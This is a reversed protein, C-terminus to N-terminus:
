LTLEDGIFVNGDHFWMFITPRGPREISFTQHNDMRVGAMEALQGWMDPRGSEFCRSRLEEEAIKHRNGLVRSLVPCLRVEANRLDPLVDVHVGPM